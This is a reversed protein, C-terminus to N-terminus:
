GKNIILMLADFKIMLRQGTIITEHDIINNYFARVHMAYKPKSAGPPPFRHSKHTLHKDCDSNSHNHSEFSTKDQIMAPLQSVQTSPKVQVAPLTNTVNVYIDAEFPFKYNYNHDHQPM